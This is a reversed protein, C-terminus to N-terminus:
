LSHPVALPPYPYSNAYTHPNLQHIYMFKVNTISQWDTTGGGGGEGVEEREGGERGERGEVGEWGEEGERGEGGKGGM